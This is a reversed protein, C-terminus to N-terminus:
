NGTDSGGIIETIVREQELTVDIYQDESIM